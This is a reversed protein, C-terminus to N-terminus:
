LWRGDEGTGSSPRFIDVQPGRGRLNLNHVCSKARARLDRKRRKADKAKELDRLVCLTPLSTQSRSLLTADVAEQLPM